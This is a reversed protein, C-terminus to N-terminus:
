QRRSLEKHWYIPKRNPPSLEEPVSDTDVRKGHLLFLQEASSQFNRPHLVCDTLRMIRPLYRKM